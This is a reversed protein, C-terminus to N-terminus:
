RRNDPVVRDPKVRKYVELWADPGSDDFSTPAEGKDAPRCCITLTDGDLRYVGRFVEESPAICRFEIRRPSTRANLTVVWVETTLRSTMREGDFISNGVQATRLSGGLTLSVRNWEGRLKRLDDASSDTRSPRPFPAPAFALMTLAFTAFLLRNAVM